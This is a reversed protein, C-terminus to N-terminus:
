QINKKKKLEDIQLKIWPPLVAKQNFKLIDQGDLLVAQIGGKLLVLRKIQQKLLYDMIEKVNQKESDCIVVIYYISQEEILGRLELYNLLQINNIKKKDYFAYLSGSICAQEYEKATRMDLSVVNLSQKQERLLQQFDHISISFTQQEQLQKFTQPHEWPREQLYENEEKMQNCIHEDQHTLIFFTKHLQTSLKLSNQLCVDLQINNQLNKLCNLMGESDKIEFTSKLELMIQSALIIEFSEDSILIYDYIKMVNEMEFERAYFTSFWPVIHTECRFDAEKLYNSLGPDFYRLTWNYLLIKEQIKQGFYENIGESNEEQPLNVIRKKYLENLCISSLETDYNFAQLLVYSISEMGQIYCNSISQNIFGRITIRIADQTRKNFRQRNLDKDLQILDKEKQENLYQCLELTLQVIQRHAELSEFGLARPWIRKRINQWILDVGGMNHIVKYIFTQFAKESAQSILKLLLIQAMEIPEQPLFVQEQTDENKQEQKKFWKKFLFQQKKQQVVQNEEQQIPNGIKIFTAILEELSCNNPCNQIIQTIQSNIVSKLEGISFTGEKLDSIQIIEELSFFQDAWDLNIFKNKVFQFFVALSIQNQQKPQIDIQQKKNYFLPNQLLDQISSRQDEDQNIMQKILDRLSWSYKSNCLIQDYDVNENICQFNICQLLIIGLSYVCAKPANIKQSHHKNFDDCDNLEFNIQKQLEPALYLKDEQELFTRQNQNIMQEIYNIIKCKKIIYSPSLYLINIYQLGNLIAYALDIIEEENIPANNQHRMKIFDMLTETSTESILKITDNEISHVYYKSLYQSNPPNSIIKNLNQMYEEFLQIQNTNQCQDYQDELNSSSNIQQNQRIIKNIYCQILLESQNTNSLNTFSNLSPTKQM